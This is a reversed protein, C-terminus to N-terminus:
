VMHAKCIVRLFEFKWYWNVFKSLQHLGSTLAAVYSFEYPEVQSQVDMYESCLFKHDILYILILPSRSDFLSNLKLGLM